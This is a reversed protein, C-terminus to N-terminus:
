STGSLFDILDKGGVGHERRFRSYARMDMARVEAALRADELAEDNGWGEQVQQEFDAQLHRDWFDNAM